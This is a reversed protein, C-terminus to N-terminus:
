NDTKKIEEYSVERAENAKTTKTPVACGDVGCCGTNTLAQYLFVAAILGSLTDAFVLAQYAMMIGLLLRIWRMLHWNYLLTQKITNM